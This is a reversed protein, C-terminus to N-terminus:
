GHLAKEMLLHPITVELFPEGRRTYGLRDYFPVATDRAHLVMKRFGRRRAFEESFRVLQTGVGARQRDFDIAVQRMRVEGAGLDHLMLCGVLDEGDLAGLHMLHAEEAREELTPILGLPERLVRRRLAFSAEYETSGYAIERLVLASQKGIGRAMVWIACFLLVAGFPVLVIGLGPDGGHTFLGGLLFGGPLLLTAAALLSFSRAAAAPPPANASSTVLACVVHLLSLLAGHAHALRFSLRRAENEVDLYFGLKFGHFAELLVGLLVFTLLAYFGFRLQRRSLAELEPPAPSKPAIM